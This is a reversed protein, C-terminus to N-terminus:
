ERSVPVDEWPGYQLYDEEDLSVERYQLVRDFPIEKKILWRVEIGM